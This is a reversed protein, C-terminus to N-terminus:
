WTDLKKEMQTVNSMVMWPPLDLKSIIKQVANIQPILYINQLCDFFQFIVKSEQKLMFMNHVLRIYNLIKLM